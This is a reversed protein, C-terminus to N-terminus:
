SAIPRVADAPGRGEASTCPPRSAVPRLRTRGRSPLSGGGPKHAPDHREPRSRPRHRGSCTVGARHPGVRHLHSLRQSAPAGVRSSSTPRPGPAGSGMGAPRGPQRAPPPGHTAGSGPLGHVGPRLRGGRGAAERAQAGPSRAWSRGGSEPGRPGRWAAKRLRQRIREQGRRSDAGM